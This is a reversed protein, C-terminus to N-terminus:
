DEFATSHMGIAPTLGVVTDVPMRKCISSAYHRFDYVFDWYRIKVIPSAM